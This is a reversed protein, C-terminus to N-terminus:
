VNVTRQSADAPMWHLVRQQVRRLATTLAIGIVSLVVCVAFSGGSDAQAEMQLILVCEFLRCILECLGNGAM